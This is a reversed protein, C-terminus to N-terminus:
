THTYKHDYTYAYIVAEVYATICGKTMVGKIETLEAQRHVDVGGAKQEVFALRAELGKALSDQYYARTIVIDDWVDVPDLRSPFRRSWTALLRHTRDALRDWDQAPDVKEAHRIGARASEVILGADGLIPECTDPHVALFEEIEALKQLTQLLRLRPGRALLPLQAWKALFREQALKLYYRARASDGHKAFVLAVEGPYDELKERHLPDSLGDTVFDHLEKQHQPLKLTSALYHRLFISNAGWLQNVEGVETLINERLNGWETLHHCCELREDEWFEVEKSTPAEGEGWAGQDDRDLAADYIRIAKGFDCELSAEVADKTYQCTAHADYLSMVVEKEGLERYLRALQFWVERDRREDEGVGALDAKRRKAAPPKSAVLPNALMHEFLMVGSHFTLTDFAANGSVAVGTEDIAHTFAADSRGCEITALHLTSVFAMSEAKGASSSLLHAIAEQIQRRLVLARAATHSKDLNDYIARFILLFIEKAMTQDCHLAQIPSLVERQMIQIDPLEGKRYTRYFSVAQAQEERQRATWIGRYRKSVDAERIRAMVGASKFRAPDVKRAGEVAKRAGFRRTLIDNMTVKRGWGGGRRGLRQRKYGHRKNKVTENFDALSGLQGQSNQTGVRFMVHKSGQLQSSISADYLQSPDMSMMDATQTLSFASAQTAKLQGTRFRPGVPGPERGSGGESQSGDQSNQSPNWFLPAFPQSGGTQQSSISVEEFHHVEDLPVDSLPQNYDGTRSCPQLMLFTCYRLWDAEAEPQHLTTLCLLLRETPESPLRRGDDWYNFLARSVDRSSDAMGRLLPTVIMKNLPTADVGVEGDGERVVDPHNDHLWILVKYYLGRCKEDPHAYFRENLRPVLEAVDEKTLEDIIRFVLLLLAEHAKTSKDNLVRWLMPKVQPYVDPMGGQKAAVIVLQLALAMVAGSVKSPLALVINMTRQDLIQREPIHMSVKCLIDLLKEWEHAKYLKQVLGRLDRIYDERLAVLKGSLDDYMTRLVMGFVDAAPQYLDKRSQQMNDVLAKQLEQPEMSDAAPDHAKIGNSLLVGLLQLGVNREYKGVGGTHGKTDLESRLKALVVAKDIWVRHRWKEVLLKVMKINERIRFWVESQEGGFDGSV